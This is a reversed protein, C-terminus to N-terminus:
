NVSIKLGSNIYETSPTFQLETEVISIFQKVFEPRLVLIQRKKDNEKREYERNTIPLRSQNLSLTINQPTVFQFNEGVILGAKLIVQDEYIQEFTEYHHIESPNAYKTKIYSELVSSEMPWDAYLNNINNIMMIIWDLGPDNYYENAVTDPRDGNNVFVDELLTVQPLVDDVIKIRSFINKIRIFDGNYPNKDYKLYLIESVKDFYAM